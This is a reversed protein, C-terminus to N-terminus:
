DVQIIADILVAANRPLGTAVLVSRSHRGADGLAEVLFDSAGNLVVHPESFGEVGNIFGTLRTVQGIRDLDGLAARAQALINIAALRAASQGADVDLDGGLKGAAVSGDPGLPMQGSVFLFGGAEVSPVYNAAPASPTPLDIGMERLRQEIRGAM